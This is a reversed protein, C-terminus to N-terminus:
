SRICSMDVCSHAFFNPVLHGWDITIARKSRSSKSSPKLKHGLNHGCVYVLHTQPKLLRLIHFQFKFVTLAASKSFHLPSASFMHGSFSRKFCPGSNQLHTTLTLFLNWYSKINFFYFNLNLFFYQLSHLDYICCYPSKKFFSDLTDIDKEWPRTRLMRRKPRGSECIATEKFIRSLHQHVKIKWPKRTFKSIWTM